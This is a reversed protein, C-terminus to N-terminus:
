LRVHVIVRVFCFLFHVFVRVYYLPLVGGKWPHPEPEIGSTRINSKKDHLVGMKWSEMIGNCEM